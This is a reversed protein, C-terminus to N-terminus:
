PFVVIDEPSVYCSTLSSAVAVEDIADTPSPTNKYSSCKYIDFLLLRLDMYLYNMM